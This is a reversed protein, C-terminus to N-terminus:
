RGALYQHNGPVATTVSAILAQRDFKSVYGFAKGLGAQTFLCLSRPKLHIHGVMHWHVPFQEDIFYQIGDLFGFVYTLYGGGM